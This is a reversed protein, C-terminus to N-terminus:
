KWEGLFPARGDTSRHIYAVAGCTTCNLQSAGLSVGDAFWTSVRDVDNHDRCQAIRRERRKAAREEPTMNGFAQLVPAANAAEEAKRQAVSEASEEITVPPNELLNAIRVMELQADATAEAIRKLASEIGITRLSASTMVLALWFISGTTALACAILLGQELNNFGEM